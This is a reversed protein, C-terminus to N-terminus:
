RSSKKAEQILDLTTQLFIRNIGGRCNEEAVIFVQTPITSNIM